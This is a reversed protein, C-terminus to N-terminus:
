LYLELLSELAKKLTETDGGNDIEHDALAATANLQQANDNTSEIERNEIARFAELTQEAGERGRSRCREFRVELPAEVVWLHFHPNRKLTKVEYPNRISDIV